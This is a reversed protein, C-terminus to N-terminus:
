DVPKTLIHALFQVEQLLQEDFLRAFEIGEVTGVSVDLNENVDGRGEDLVDSGLVILRGYLCQFTSFYFFPRGKKKLM